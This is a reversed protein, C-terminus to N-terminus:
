KILDGIVRITSIIYDRDSERITTPLVARLAAIVDNALEEFGDLGIIDKVVNEAHNCLEITGM